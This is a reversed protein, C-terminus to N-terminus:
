ATEITKGNLIAKGERPLKVQIKANQPAIIRLAFPQDPQNEWQVEIDGAPTPVVGRCWTLDGPHPDVLVPSFGEGAPRVGLVQTSLFFTPAASWGHCHSRTLRGTRGSWMEWFTTAGMDTMFGWDRRITDIFEQDRSEGAYAELLFFEFFPSGAKVFDAPPQYMMDRCRAAREASHDAAVGSMFAVTQTQQSYIPSHEEGRLCDTYAQKEENWLHTNIAASLENALTRFETATEGEDLADALVAVDRLAHVAFCNNHTVVGKSPTDMEAWDFMNWANISFLGKGNLHTRIGAVNQKVYGLLKQSRERDGTFLLYERCSRMWLFSWAPLINTWASPVQSETISSRELSQGSQELCRFWLRPDGNIAWDILAENRADGVWHTQEYTPCDTYTDEACMRLTHAGVKWINDLKADSSAFRGRRSQPYSNFLVKFGRLQVPGSQNRITVYSYTFGRRLLTQYTQHGEHCIYRFSNNMGEAFNYRGDPQIFEFNHFDLITGEAASVEFAHMGLVEQGWDLLLRVDSGDATPQVTTWEAGSLLGDLHQVEVPAATVTDTYSQVFADAVPAYEPSFPRFYPEGIVSTVDGSAAFSEGRELTASEDFPAAFVMSAERARLDYLDDDDALAFPGVLAWEADNNEVDSNEAGYARFLLGEPGDVCFVFEHFHNIRAPAALMSNWGANLTATAQPIEGGRILALDSAGEHDGTLEAVNSVAIEVGNVKISGPDKHPLVFSVECAEPAWIQTALYFHAALLNSNFDGAALYQKAHLTFRYPLSRVAEKSVIRQPLLAELTLFPIGRPELNQHPGDLAGRLLTATPWDSDDYDPGIWDDAERADYQEEFAEQVSLRPVASVFSPDPTARWEADTVITEDALELEALLGAPAPIYQFNGDGFHNVLVTLVNEGPLLDPTLDYTDYRWHNPWARVPGQGLYFGNLYLSYRSDATLHLLAPGGEYNFSRRFRVFSNREPVEEACWIWHGQGAELSM